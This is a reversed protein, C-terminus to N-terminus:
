RIRRPAPLNPVLGAGTRTLEAVMEARYQELLPRMRVDLALNVLEEPDTELDYLEEIEDPELTCIYKYQGKRLSIWWPIPLGPFLEGATVGGNTESGLRAVFHELLVPHGWDSEPDELVSELSHGHMPWPLPTEAFAFFTPVLDAVSVPHNCVKGQAVRAPLRAVLPVRMCAEYPGVTSAFGHEGIAFGQDSTFVILTNDLQGTETLAALLAGVGEDIACIMRNYSRVFEPLTPDGALVHEAWVTGDDRKKWMPIDQMYSPKGPRPGLLDRPTPVAVNQYRDQHRPPALHPLHPANYCLWLFWPKDHPRRIEEVAFETYLDTSYGPLVKKPAGDISLPQDYYWPRLEETDNIEWQDWVVSHDWDRGHGTDAGLHWKGIVATRYGARRLASPWLRFVQPDYDGDLDMELNLGEIGHPLLGTMATARSPSCWSGAYAYTFRMGQESLRDINPTEVWPRVGYSGVTEWSQDDTLIFLINPRTRETGIGRSSAALVSFAILLITRTWSMAM